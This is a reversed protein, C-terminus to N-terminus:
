CPQRQCREIRAVKVAQWDVDALNERAQIAAMSADITRLIPAVDIGLFQPPFLKLRDRAQKLHIVVGRYIKRSLQHYAAALQILGQIFFRGDEPRNQWIAEWAEHAEWFAGANFLLIGRDLQSEEPPTLHFAALTTLDISSLPKRPIRRSLVTDWACASAAV